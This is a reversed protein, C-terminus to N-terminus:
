LETAPIHDTLYDEFTVFEFDNLLKAIKGRTSRINVYSKFRRMANMPLKPHDPDIERPHVYFVAPRGESLVKKAMTKILFYPFLRLYGGGFFCFSKGMFQTVSIPFEVIQGSSGGVLHPALHNTRWGGHGRPVPFVSSDYRYGAETLKDFFWPTNETTSFGASRFGIVPKGTIDEIIKKSRSVDQLFETDTMEYVLRHGYGHSAIEHGRASAERVLDPYREAIWGLFFCTGHIEANGLLDLLDTFNKRIRSPLSDWTRLEPTSPLDLIHFWDEVDISFICKM